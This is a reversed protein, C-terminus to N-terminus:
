IQHKLIRRNNEKLNVEEAGVVVVAEKTGEVVDEEGVEEAEEVVTQTKLNLNREELRM